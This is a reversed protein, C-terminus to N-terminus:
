GALANTVFAKSTDTLSSAGFTVPSGSGSAIITPDTYCNSLTTISDASLTVTFDTANWAARTTPITVNGSGGARALPTDGAMLLGAAACVAAVACGKLAFGVFRM